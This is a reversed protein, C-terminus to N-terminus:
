HVMKEMVHIDRADWSLGIRGGVEIHDTTELKLERGQTAFTIDYDGQKIEDVNFDYKVDWIEVKSNDEM